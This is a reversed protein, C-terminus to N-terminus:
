VFIRRAVTLLGVMSLMLPLVAPEPIVYHDPRTLSLGADYTESYNGDDDYMWTDGMLVYYPTLEAYNGDGLQAGFTVDNGNTTITGDTWVSTTKDLPLFYISYQDSGLDDAVYEAYFSGDTKTIAILSLSGDESWPQTTYGYGAGLSTGSWTTNMITGSMDLGTQVPRYLILEADLENTDNDYMGQNGTSSLTVSAATGVLSRTTIAGTLATLSVDPTSGDITKYQEVGWRVNSNWTRDSNYSFAIGYDGNLGATSITASGGFFTTNGFTDGASDYLYVIGGDQAFANITVDAIGSLPLLLALGAVIWTTKM